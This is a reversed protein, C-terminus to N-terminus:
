TRSTAARFVVGTDGQWPHPLSAPAGPRSNDYYGAYVTVDPGRQLLIVAVAAAAAAAAGAGGTIFPNRVLWHLLGFSGPLGLPLAAFMTPALDPRPPEHAALLAERLEAQFREDPKM